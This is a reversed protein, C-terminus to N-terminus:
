RHEGLNDSQKLQRIIDRQEQLYLLQELLKNIAFQLNSSHEGAIKKHNSVM